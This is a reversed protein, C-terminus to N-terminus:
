RGILIRQTQNINKGVVRLFYTGFLQGTDIRFTENLVGDYSYEQVLAGSMSWLQVRVAQPEPLSFTVDFHNRAPNPYAIFRGLRLRPQNPHNNNTLEVQNIYLNNGGNNTFVFALRLNEEGVFATLNIFQERWDTSETPVWALSSEPFGLSELDVSRITQFNGSCSTAIKVELLDTASNLGYSLNFFLGAETFSALSFTPSVLWSENGTPLGFGNAIMQNTQHEWDTTGNASTIQWSHDAEFVERFPTDIEDSNVLVVREIMNNLENDDVLENVQTIQFLLTNSGNTLVDTPLELIYQEGAPLNLGSVAETVTNGNLAYNLSFSTIIENGYNSLTIEPTLSPDCLIVPINDVSTIALDLEFAGVPYELAPSTRLSLRRPSNEMVTRMRFRQDATFMNMCEDNTYDMFNMFMDPLADSDCSDPGPFTCPSAIGGNDAGSVPTDDCFDDVACGGDGWIHRLGLFHGIEHTATQGLSEFSGETTPNIGFWMGDIVVGDTLPNTDPTLGPLGSAEPYTAWGLYNVDAVWINLYDESPWYSESKLVADHTPYTYSTRSGQKRIIGTTPNGEPTQRALVFEIEIDAEVPQFISPVNSARPNSKRFDENLIDIQDLIRQLPLNYGTGNPEGKHIIHVVVPITYVEAQRRHALSLQQRKKSQMWAEFQDTREGSPVPTACRDQTQAIYSPLTLLLLLLTRM